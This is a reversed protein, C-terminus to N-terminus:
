YLVCAMVETCTWPGYRVPPLPSPPPPPLACLFYTGLMGQLINLARPTLPDTASSTPRTVGLSAYSAGTVTRNPHNERFHDNRLMPVAQEGVSQIFPDVERQPEGRRFFNGAKETAVDGSSQALEQENYPDRRRQNDRARAGRGFQAGQMTASGDRPDGKYVVGKVRLTDQVSGGQHYEAVSENVAQREAGTSRGM